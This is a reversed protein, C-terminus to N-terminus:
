LRIMSRFGLFSVGSNSISQAKEIGPSVYQYDIGLSFWKTLRAEYFAEFGSEADSMAFGPYIGPITPIDLESVGDSLSYNFYGIGWTDVPRSKIPPNGGLGILFYQDSISGKGDTIGLQGFVGFAQKVNDPNQYLTQEFFYTAVWRNSKEGIYDGTPPFFDEIDETNRVDKTSYAGLVGQKGKKGFFHTVLDFSGFFTVGDQFLDNFGMKNVRSNADYFALTIDRKENSSMYYAGFVTPVSIANPPSVMANHYFNKLGLGGGFTSFNSLDINNIKGLVVKDTKSLFQIFYINMDWRDAGEIGPYALATNVPLLTGGRNNVSHGMNYEMRAIAFFGKWLGLKEANLITTLGFKSGFEFDNNGEGSVMGQYFNTISSKFIFGKDKLNSRLGGWNGTLTHRERFNNDNEVFTTDTSYEIKSEESEQADLFSISFFTCLFLCTLKKTM